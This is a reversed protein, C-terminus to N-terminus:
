KQVLKTSTKYFIFSTILTFLTSSVLIYLNVGYTGFSYVSIILTLISLPLSIIYAVALKSAMNNLLLGIHYVRGINTIILSVGYMQVYIGYSTYKGNYFMNLLEEPFLILPFSFTLAILMIILVAEREMRKKDDGESQSIKILYFNQIGNILPSSLQILYNCAGIIAVQVPGLLLLLVFKYVNAYSWIMINVSGNWIMFKNNKLVFSKFKGDYSFRYRGGGTLFDLAILSIITLFMVLWTINVTLNDNIYIWILSCIVIVAYSLDFFILRLFNMKFIKASRFFERWTFAFIVLSFITWELNTVQLFSLDIFFYSSYLLLLVSISFIIQISFFYDLVNKKGGGRIFLFETCMGKQLFYVFLWTSFMILFFGFNEEELFRGLLIAILFNTGSYILQDVVSLLGNNFILKEKILYIM